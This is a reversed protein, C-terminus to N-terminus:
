RSRWAPVRRVPFPERPLQTVRADKAPVRAKQSAILWLAGSIAALYYILFDYLIHMFCLGFVVSLGAALTARAFLRLEDDAPDSAFVQVAKGAHSLTTILLALFLVLAPIGAESSAQTYTNHTGLWADSRHLTKGNYEEFNGVGLGFVPYQLTYKISNQLLQERGDTSENASAKIENSTPQGGGWITEVREWFVAPARGIMVAFGVVLVIGIIRGRTTVRLVFFWTLIASLIVNLFGGRSAVLVLMWMSTGVTALLLLTRFNSRRSLYLAAMFPLAVSLAIGLFNWGFIGQNIGVLRNGESLSPVGQLILSAMTAIFESIVFVWLIKRIRSGTTLTQTLAFFFLLTRLWIQTLMQFSGGRWYAFPLGIMFWATLLLVITLERPMQLRARRTAIAVLCVLPAAVSLVLTLHLVGLAPIVDEPRAFVSFALLMALGFAFDSQERAPVAAQAVRQTSAPVEAYLRDAPSITKSMARESVFGGFGNQRGYDSVLRSM